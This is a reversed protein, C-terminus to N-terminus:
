SFWSGYFPILDISYSLFYFYIWIIGLCSLRPIFNVFDRFFTQTEGSDVTWTSLPRFNSSLGTWPRIQVVSWSLLKSTSSHVFKQNNYFICDKLIYSQCFLRDQRSDTRQPRINTVFMLHFFEGRRWPSFRMWLYPQPASYWLSITSQYQMRM